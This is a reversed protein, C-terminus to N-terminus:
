TRAKLAENVEDETLHFVECIREISVHDVNILEAIVEMARARAYNRAYEEIIECM